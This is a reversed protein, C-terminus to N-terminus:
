MLKLFLITLILINRYFSFFRGFGPICLNNRMHKEKKRSVAFAIATAAGVFLSIIIVKAKM